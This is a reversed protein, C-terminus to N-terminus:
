EYRLAVVPDVRLARRAPIYCAALAVATLLLAVALLTLPDTASVGFLLSYKTMIRTLGLSAVLGAAVGILTLRAGDGLILRLVDRRQAGLAIRIGIEQTRQGILYSMVGYIGVSALLLALAAFVGLLIMSFRRNALSDSIIAKMPEFGYVVDESSVDHITRRISALVADPEGAARAVVSTGSTSAFADDPLQRISFYMEARLPNTADSDLGWQNVHGVVGVIEAKTNFTTLNVRRGVPDQGPFYKGALVEDVVVVFPSHNDDQDTFYRGRELPIGMVKFYDPEVIYDLMWNMDSESAPKPQGDLWFHQDDEGYMPFAGWSQSVARVGPTSDLRDDLARFAARTAAPSADKMGSPFAVNFTVVDRPDFGPDVKSIRALSRVMLGAGALLVMALALEVTVFIGHARRHAGSTGRGGEKLVDHLETRSAKLAPALGFLIGSLLSVAAAFALVRADLRIEDARPLATPLAALGAETGWWALLLGLGGGAFALLACETLLQRIVRRRGAGLAARIAFERSRGTSRALLLNAVNVCAILLVFGVAGLLVLLYPQIDGVMQQKLPLINATTGRNADPYALALNAAIRELDAKAQRLTVGPKMRGIGHLGLAAKRIQLAPNPWLRIPAYVDSPQFTGIRLYFNAPMVGVITYAKGDLTLLKGLADPKGGFKRQWLSASILAVPAAGFQDDKTTFDRGIAPRVGLTGFFSASVWEGRLREAEGLGTLNFSYSRSIGMSSFTHNQNQWDVFNFYPIAGTEFNPKREHLTVLQDPQPFPLPNLLVGNVISFLATNAGIGLALTLIAIAALGPNKALMRVGYKLDQRWVDLTRLGWAERTEERMAAANGFARLAAYRAEDSRMGAALNQEIQREVHFQLEENLAQEARRRRFLARASNVVANLWEM